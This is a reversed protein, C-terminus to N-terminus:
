KKLIVIEEKEKVARTTFVQVLNRATIDSMTMKKATRVRIQANCKKEERDTRALALPYLPSPALYVRSFVTDPEDKEGPVVLKNGDDVIPIATDGFENREVSYPGLSFVPADGRTSAQWSGYIVLGGITGVEVDKEFATTARVKAKNERSTGRRDPRSEEVFLNSMGALMSRVERSGYSSLLGFLRPSWRDPGNARCTPSLLENESMANALYSLVYVPLRQTRCLKAHKLSSSKSFHEATTSGDAYRNVFGNKNRRYVTVMKEMMESSPVVGRPIHGRVANVIFSDVMRKEGLKVINPDKDAGIFLRHHHLSLCAVGTTCTGAFMDVVTDGPQTYRMVLEMILALNKQEARAMNRSGTTGIDAEDREKDADGEEGGLGNRMLIREGQAFRPVGDVVNFMAAVSSQVYGHARWNVMKMADEKSKHKKVAHFAYEAINKHTLTQHYPVRNGAGKEPIFVIPVPSVDFESNPVGNKDPKAFKKKWEPFQDASCFLVVHGGPRLVQECVEVTRTMNKDSLQDYDSNPRDRRFRVEYPPDALVIQARNMLATDFPAGSTAKEYFKKVPSPVVRAFDDIFGHIEAWLADCNCPDEECQHETSDEVVLPSVAHEDLAVGRLAAGRTSMAGEGEDDSLDVDGGQPAAKARRAENDRELRVTTIASRAKNITLTSYEFREPLQDGDPIYYKSLAQSHIVEKQEKSELLASNMACGYLDSVFDAAFGRFVEGDAADMGRFLPHASEHNFPVGVDGSAESIEIEEGEGERATGDITYLKMMCDAPLCRGEPVIRLTASSSDCYIFPALIDEAEDVNLFTTLKCWAYYVVEVFIGTNKNVNPNVRFCAVSPTGSSSSSSTKSRKSPRANNKESVAEFLKCDLALKLFVLFPPYSGKTRLMCNRSHRCKVRAPVAGTFFNTDFYAKPRLLYTPLVKFSGLPEGDLVRTVGFKETVVLFMEYARSDLDGSQPVYQLLRSAYKYVQSLMSRLHITTLIFQREEARNTPLPLQSKRQKQKTNKETKEFETCAKLFFRAFLRFYQAHEDAVDDFSSNDETSAGDNGSAAVDKYAFQVIWKYMTSWQVDANTKLDKGRQDLYHKRAVLLVRLIEDYKFAGAEEVKKSPTTSPPGM